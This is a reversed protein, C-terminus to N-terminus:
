NNEIDNKRLMRYERKREVDEIKNNISNVYKEQKVTQMQAM